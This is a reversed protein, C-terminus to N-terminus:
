EDEAESPNAGYVFDFRVLHLDSDVRAHGIGWAPVPAIHNNRFDDERFIGPAHPPELLRNRETFRVGDFAYYLRRPGAATAMSGVGYSQPWVLVEHGQHLPNAQHKIFPGTPTAAVALGMQTTSPGTPGHSRSRGKYYMWIRGERVILSADDVRLSDFAAPEGLTAELLPNLPRRKWPGEPSDAIAVGIATPSVNDSWSNDFPKAVATYYLFYKGEFVLINPTFVGHGDWAHDAGPALALGQEEWRRGDSSAAYWISGNYGSPYNDNRRTVKTYWVYYTDGVRIVDSPDRRSVGPEHAIADEYRFRVATDGTSLKTAIDIPRRSEERYERQGGPPPPDPDFFRAGSGM